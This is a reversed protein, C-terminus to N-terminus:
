ELDVQEGGFSTMFGKREYGGNGGQRNGGFGGRNQHGMGPRGQFGGPGRPLSYEINIPRGDLKEGNKNIANKASETNYFDVFGFGKSRGEENLMIRVGKINGCGSFHSKLKNEDISFALNRVIINTSEQGGNQAGGQQNGGFRDNRPQSQERPRTQEVSITRGNVQSNNLTIAKKMADENSFKIFAKGSPNGDHRMMIKVSVIDKCAKFHNKIDNETAAFPLGAVIVEVNTNVQNDNNFNNQNNQNNQYNNQQRAPKVPQVEEVPEEEVAEEEVEEEEQEVEEEEEVEEEVEEEQFEEESEQVVQRMKELKSNTKQQPAPQAKAPQAKAPQAKAPVQTKAPQATETKVKKAPVVPVEEEEDDQHISSKKSAQSAKRPAPVPASVPAKKQPQVTSNQKNPAQAVKAQTKVPKVVEEESDIDESESMSDFDAVKANAKAVPKVPAKAVQTPQTKAPAPQERKGLTGNQNGNAQAKAVPANATKPAPAQKPAPKQQAPKSKAVLTIDQEAENGSDEPTTALFNEQVKTNGKKM